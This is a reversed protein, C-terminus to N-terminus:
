PTQCVGERLHFVAPLVAYNIQSTRCPPIILDEGQVLSCKIIIKKIDLTMPGATLFEESSNLTTKLSDNYVNTLRWIFVLTYFFGDVRLIRESHVM